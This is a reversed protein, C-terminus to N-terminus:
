YLLKYLKSQNFIEASKCDYNKRDLIPKNCEVIRLQPYALAIVYPNSM